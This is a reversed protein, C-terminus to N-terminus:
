NIKGVKMWVKLVRWFKNFDSFNYNVRYIQDPQGPNKHFVEYDNRAVNSARVIEFGSDSRQFDVAHNGEFRSLLDVFQEPLEEVERMDMVVTASGTQSNRVTLSEYNNGFVLSLEGFRIPTNIEPSPYERHRNRYKSMYDDSVSMNRQLIASMVLKQEYAFGLESDFITPPSSM